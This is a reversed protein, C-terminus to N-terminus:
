GSQQNVSKFMSVVVVDKVTTVGENIVDNAHTRSHLFNRFIQLFFVDFIPYFSSLQLPQVIALHQHPVSSTVDMSGSLGSQSTFYLIM